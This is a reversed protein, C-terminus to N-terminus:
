HTALFEGVVDNFARQQELNISHGGDPIEVFRAGPIYAALARGLRPPVMIDDAGTVVLTPIRLAGLRDAADHALSADIQAVFWDSPASTREAYAIVGDAAGEREFFRWSFLWLNAQRQFAGVPVRPYITRWALLLERLRPEIHASAAVLVLSRVLRPALLALEQAISAGMSLGVVHAPQGGGRAELLAAADEAMIPLTLIQGPASQGTRALAHLNHPGPAIIPM